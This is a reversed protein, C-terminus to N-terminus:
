RCIVCSVVVILEAIRQEYISKGYAHCQIGIM